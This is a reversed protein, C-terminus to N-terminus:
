YHVDQASDVSSRANVGKIKLDMGDTGSPEYTLTQFCEQRRKQSFARGM